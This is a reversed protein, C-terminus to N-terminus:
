IIIIKKFYFHFYFHTNVFSNGEPRGLHSCLVIYDPDLALMKEITPITSDIRLTDTVECTEKNLPVNYDVRCFIRASETRKFKDNGAVIIGPGDRKLQNINLKKSLDM